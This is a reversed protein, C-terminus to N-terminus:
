AGELVVPCHTRVPSGRVGAVAGGAPLHLAHHSGASQVNAAKSSDVLSHVLMYVCYIVVIVFQSVTPAPWPACEPPQAPPPSVRREICIPLHKLPPEGAPEEDSSWDADLDPEVREVDVDLDDDSGATGAHGNEEAPRPNIDFEDEREIYEQM